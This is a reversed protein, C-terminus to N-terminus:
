LLAAGFVGASDGLKPPLLRIQPNPNFIHRKAAEAGLTYLEQINGVGGGLVIADPDLTNVIQAIAQGFRNILNNIVVFAESDYDQESDKAVRYLDAIERLPKHTLTLGEYFREVAPGSLVTEVCGIRGCYCKEGGIELPNHGWEGSIGQLGSLVKGDVVIGGGVGTGMIVGFVVRHGKGAGLLAEALAFCNADNAIQVELNLRAQLDNLLPRGNLATTNCGRMTGAQPDLTGPAGIGVRTPAEGVQDKTENLVQQIRSLIHDYGQDAETPIRHRAVVEDGSLVACEIKTGGLDVGWLLNSM